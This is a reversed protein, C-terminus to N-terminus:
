QWIQLSQCWTEPCPSQKAVWPCLPHAVHVCSQALEESVGVQSPDYCTYPLSLPLSLTICIYEHPNMSVRPSMDAFVELPKIHLLSEKILQENKETLFFLSPFHIKISVLVAQVGGVGVVGGCM